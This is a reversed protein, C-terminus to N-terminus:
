TKKYTSIYKMFLDVAEILLDQEISFSLRVWSGFGEGYASGPVLALKIDKLIDSCFNDANFIGFEALNIFYYFGGKPKFKDLEPYLKAILDRNTKYYEKFSLVENEAQEYGVFAAQSLSNACTSINQQLGDLNDLLQVDHTAVTGLRLGTAAYAKSFGSFSIVKKHSYFEKLIEKTNKEYSFLSYIEDILLFADQQNVVELIQNMEQRSFINGDPNNPSCLLVADFFTKGFEKLWDDNKTNIRVIKKGTMECIAHYGLWAPELVCITTGTFAQFFYYLGQKLGPVILLEEASYSGFYENKAISERLPLIGKSACYHTAGEALGEQLKNKISKPLSFHTDGISLPYVKFGENAYQKALRTIEMSASKKEM